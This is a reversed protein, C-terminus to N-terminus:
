DFDVVCELGLMSELVKELEIARQIEMSSKRKVVLFLSHSDPVWERKENDYQHTPLVRFESITVGRNELVM